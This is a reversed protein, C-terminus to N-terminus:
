SVNKSSRWQKPAIKSLKMSMDLFIYEVETLFRFFHQDILLDFALTIHILIDNIIAM